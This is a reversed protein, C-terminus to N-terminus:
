LSAATGVAPVETVVDPVLITSDSVVSDCTIGTNSLAKGTDVIFFFVWFWFREM